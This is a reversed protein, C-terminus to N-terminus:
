AKTAESVLEKAKASAKAFTSFEAGEQAFLTDALSKVISERTSVKLATDLANSAHRKARQRKGYLTYDSRANENQAPTYPESSM